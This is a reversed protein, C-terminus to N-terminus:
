RQYKENTFLKQNNSKESHFDSFLIRPNRLCILSQHHHTFNRVKIFIYKRGTINADEFCFQRYIKTLNNSVKKLCQWSSIKNLKCITFTISTQSQVFKELTDVSLLGTEYHSKM